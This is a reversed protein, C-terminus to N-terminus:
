TRVSVKVVASLGPYLRDADPGVSEPSLLIKVPLRQVVKTFNGTANDPPLLSFRTGTGPSFSQVIGNFAHGEVADITVAVNQGTRLCALQSEKFNAVVWVQDEVVAMVPQGPQLRQGVEVNKKAIRGSSPARIVTYDVQLKAAALAAAARDIQAAAVTDQARAAALAANASALQAILSQREAKSSEFAARAVDLTQISVAQVSASALLDMRNFDLRARTLEAANEVIRAAATDVDALAKAIEARTQARTGRAQALDAQAALVALELDAPDIEVLPQGAHVRENDNALVRIVTGNIRPSIPHVDGELYADDTSVFGAAHYAAVGILIAAAGAIASTTVIRAWPVRRGRSRAAETPPAFAALPISALTASPSATEATSNM